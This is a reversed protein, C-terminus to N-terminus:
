SPSVGSFARHKGSFTPVMRGVWPYQSHKSRQFNRHRYRRCRFGTRRHSILVQPFRELRYRPMHVETWWREKSSSPGLRIFKKLTLRWGQENGDADFRKEVLEVRTSYSVNLNEDNSNIGFFSYASRIYRVLMAQPLDTHWFIPIVHLNMIEPLKRWPTGPPFPLGNFKHM